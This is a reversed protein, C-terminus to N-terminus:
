RSFVKVACLWWGGGHSRFFAVLLGEGVEDGRGEGEESVEDGREAGRGWCGGGWVGWVREVDEVVGGEEEFGM